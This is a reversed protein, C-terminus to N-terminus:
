QFHYLLIDPNGSVGVIGGWSGGVIIDPIIHSPTPNLLPPPITALLFLQPPNTM